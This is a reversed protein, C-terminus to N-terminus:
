VCFPLFIKKTAWLCYRYAEKPLKGTNKSKLLVNNRREHDSIVCTTASFSSSRLQSMNEKNTISKRGAQSISTDDVFFFSPSSIYQLFQPLSSGASAFTQGSQPVLTTGSGCRSVIKQEWQPWFILLSAITQGYQPAPVSFYRACCVWCALAACGVMLTILVFVLVFVFPAAPNPKGKLFFHVAKKRHKNRPPSPM